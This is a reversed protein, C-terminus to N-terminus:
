PYQQEIQGTIGEVLGSFFEFWFTLWNNANEGLARGITVGEWKDPVVLGKDAFPLIVLVVLIAIIAIWM